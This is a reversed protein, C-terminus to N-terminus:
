RSWSVAYVLDTLLGALGLNQAYLYECSLKPVSFARSPNSFNLQLPWVPNQHTTSPTPSYAASRLRADQLISSHGPFLRPRPLEPPSFRLQCAPFICHAAPPGPVHPASSVAPALQAKPSSDSREDLVLRGPAAPGAGHCRGQCQPSPGRSAGCNQNCGPQCRRYLTSRSILPLATTSLM